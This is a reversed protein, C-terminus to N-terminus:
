EAVCRISFGMSRGYGYNTTVNGSSSYFYLASSSSNLSSSWYNGAEGVYGVNGINSSRSGAAPLFLFPQPATSATLDSTKDAFANWNVTEYVAYGNNGYEVWASNATCIGNTCVVPVWTFPSTANPVTGNVDTNFNGYISTPNACSYAAIREWEDQTPVRWGAPCPNNQPMVWATSQYYNGNSALVGPNSPFLPGTPVNIFVGNGWLDDKTGNTSYTPSNQTQRWDFNNDGTGGDSTGNNDVVFLNDAPTSGDITVIQGDSDYTATPLKVRANNDYLTYNGDTSIAYPLNKRGWQYRGGYVRGNNTTTAGTGTNALYAMQKKPTDLTPDAGLNYAMFKPIDLAKVTILASASYITQDYRIAMRRFYMTSGYSLTNAAITYDANTNTGAAPSWTYNDTSSQWQYTIADADCNVTADALTIINAVDPCITMPSPNSQTLVTSCLSIWQTGNFFEVCDIDTNYIVLGLAADSNSAINLANRELTTLQPLRLGGKQITATLELLSFSQPANESGVNVQAKLPSCFFVAGMLLLLLSFRNIRM